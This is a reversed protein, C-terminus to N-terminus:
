TQDVLEGLYMTRSFRICTNVLICTCFHEYSCQECQRFKPALLLIWLYHFIYLWKPIEYLLIKQSLPFSNVVIWAIVHIFRLFLILMCFCFMCLWINQSPFLFGVFNWKSINWFYAFSCKQLFMQLHPCFTYIIYIIYMIINRVVIKTIYLIYYQTQRQTPYFRSNNRLSVCKNESISAISRQKIKTIIGYTNVKYSKTISYTYIKRVTRLVHYTEFNYIDICRNYVMIYM